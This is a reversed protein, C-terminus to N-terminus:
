TANGRTQNIVKDPNRMGTIGIFTEEWGDETKKKGGDYLRIEGTDKKYWNSNLVAKTISKLRITQLSYFPGDIVLVRQNTLFYSIKKLFFLPLVSYAFYGFFVLSLVWLYDGLLNIEPKKFLPFIIVALGAILSAIKLALQHLFYPILEPKGHWIIAEDELLMKEIEEPSL